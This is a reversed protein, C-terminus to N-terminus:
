HHTASTISHTNWSLVKTLLLQSSQSTRAVSVLDMDFKSLIPSWNHQLQEFWKTYQPSCTLNSTIGYISATIGEFICTLIRQHDENYKQVRLKHYNAAQQTFPALSQPHKEDPSFVLM